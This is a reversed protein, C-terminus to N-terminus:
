QNALKLAKEIAEFTLIEPLIIGQRAQPGYIINFPIGFREYRALFASIAEDPLTWDAQMMVADSRELLILTEQTELVFAKNAKCTICWDATIDVFVLKDDQILRSLEREEFIQWTVSSKDASSNVIGAAQVFLSMIWLFTGFMLLGLGYKLKVMWAGPRPLAGIFSPFLAFLLWPSALGVGMMLLTGYLATDSQSLGFSVATGVFPASCPTALLTALMGAAFDSAMGQDTRAKGMSSAPLWREIFSPIRLHVLDFLSLTFLGMVLAMVGLFLPNQFQIGWGIQHGAQRLLQLFLAILGFSTIIGAASALFRKRISKATAGAMHMIASIKISLVPLVCPMLNLILGGLFAILWIPLSSSNSQSTAAVGPNESVSVTSEYFEAGADITLRLNDGIAARRKGGTQPILYHRGDEKQPAGFSAGEVGEVFVDELSIDEQFELRMDGTQNDIPSLTVDADRQRPVDALARAIDQAYISPRVSGMPLTLSVDGSVPVCIDSCILTEIYASISVGEAQDDWALSLPLIVRDAYGFTDIGFLQFREPLPYSIDASLGLTSPQTIIIRPALGADGPTRWYTKWGKELWIDLGVLLQNSQGATESSSILRIKAFDTKIWESEAANVSLGWLLTIMIVALQIFPKFILIVKHTM